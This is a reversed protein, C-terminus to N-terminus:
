TPSRRPAASTSSRWRARARALEGDVVVLDFPGLRDGVAERDGGLMGGGIAFAWSETDALRPDGLGGAQATEAATALAVAALVVPLARLRM